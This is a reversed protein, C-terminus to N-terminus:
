SNTMLRNLNKDIYKENPLLSRQIRRAYYISDLIEKQKEEILHKQKTIEVNAKQKQLYSRYAFLAFAFVLLLIGSVSWIIVKQKKSEAETVAEKKEQELKSASKKKDFQFQMDTQVLKKTNDENFLSDRAAIYKKYHELAKAYQGTISYLESIMNEMSERVNISKISDALQLTKLLVEEAEKYKKLTIYLSALNSLTTVMRKKNGEEESLKISKLYYIQAQDYKGQENYSYGIKGYWLSIREKNGIEEAIHLGKFYYSFALSYLSDSKTRNKSKFEEAWDAYINGVNGLGASFTIKGGLEEDIKLSKFYYELAKPYNNQTNYLYGINGLTQTM